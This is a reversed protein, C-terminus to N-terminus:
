QFDGATLLVPAARSRRAPATGFRSPAPARWAPRTIGDVRRAVPRQAAVYKIPQNMQLGGSFRVLSSCDPVGWTSSFMPKNWQEEQEEKSFLSIYIPRYLHVWASKSKRPLMSNFASCTSCASNDLFVLLKARNRKRRSTSCASCKVQQVALGSTGSRAMDLRSFPGGLGNPGREFPPVDM